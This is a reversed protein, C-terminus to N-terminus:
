ILSYIQLSAITGANNMSITTQTGGYLYVYIAFTEGVALNIICSCSMAPAYDFINESQGILKPSASTMLFTVIETPQVDSSYAKVSWFILLRLPKIACLFQTGGSVTSTTLATPLENLVNTGWLVSNYTDALMSQSIAATKKVLKYQTNTTSSYVSLIFLFSFLFLQM